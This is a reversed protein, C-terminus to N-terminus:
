APLATSALPKGAINRLLRSLLLLGEPWPGRGSAADLHGANGADVLLSRWAEAFAEARDFSCYPDTRSAVVLTPFPLATLPAAANAGCLAAGADTEPDVPGVLFAARVAPVLLTAVAVSHLVGCSHAIVIAPRRASQASAVLRAGGSQDGGNVKPLKVTVANPLRREWRTIWHDPGARQGPVLLIDADAIRM